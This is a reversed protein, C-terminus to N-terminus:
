EANTAAGAKGKADGGLYGMAKGVLTPHFGPFAWSNYMGYYKRANFILKMSEGNLTRFPLHLLHPEATKDVFPACHWIIQDRVKRPVDRKSPVMLFPTIYFHRRVKILESFAKVDPSQSKYADLFTSAEDVLMLCRYLKIGRRACEEAIQEPTYTLRRGHGADLIDVALKQLLEMQALTEEATLHVFPPVGEPLNADFGPAIEMNSAVSVTPVGLRMGIEHACAVAGLTKGSGGEGIFLNVKDLLRALINNTNAELRRRRALLAAQQRRAQTAMM